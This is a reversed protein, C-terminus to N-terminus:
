HFTENYKGMANNIVDDHHFAWVDPDSFFGDNNLLEIDLWMVDDVEDSKFSEVELPLGDPYEYVFLYILTVNQRADRDPYSSVKIPEENNNYVQWYRQEPVDFGTEEFTERLVAEYASEDWDLYGSIAAWKGPCDMKKSRKEVLVYMKDHYEALHVGVVAVSRSIWYSKDGVKIEENQRNKFKREM